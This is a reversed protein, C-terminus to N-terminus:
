KESKFQVIIVIILWSNGRLTKAYYQNLINELQEQKGSIAESEGV